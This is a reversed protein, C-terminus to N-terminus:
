PERARFRRGIASVFRHLPGRWALDVDLLEGESDRVSPVELADRAAMFRLDGDEDLEIRMGTVAEGQALRNLVASSLGPLLHHTLIRDITRAGVGGDSACREVIADLLADDYGLGAHHRREFRRRVRELKLRAIRRLDVQRLPYYPVEVMRGLLASGFQAQLIPRIGELLTEPDVRGLEQDQALRAIAEGAVNSTPLITTNSFDVTAGEGDELPGKDFVQYFPEVVDAHAKEIEDLLVVTYPRRRVAETLVGGRGYGVYGPPAGKLNSVSHAEQYESMNVVVMNEDGGYLTEALAIATETKGVGSPGVLLFVGVPKGPDDLEAHSTRMRRAIADLAEDQGVVRRGLHEELQLAVGIQDRLMRGVPIGTWDSIVSAVVHGDVEVPVMPRNQQLLELNRREAQLSERVSEAIEGRQEIDHELQRIAEVKDCEARWRDRLERQERRAAELQELLRALRDRHDAHTASERELQTVEAELLDVRRAADEVAPPTSRQRIGVRACATDLVSIAKDPLLRGTIYRQSLNVAERVAADVVRVDHHAELGRVASRVMTVATEVDPEEIHVVQFRRALAADQEFSRKYEAWTTAAITRLEGRALAPKLLNAADGYGKAGGAGILSHAEDIFLVVPKLSLEVDKIVAKLRDEFAGKLSAGAQLLALDLLRISINRLRPPVDGRIVRLALGEVVATKGVGAEGTLIPNNQRRRALVDIIQRIERERGVIPDIKGARAQETLDVTYQDLAPTPVDAKAALDASPPQSGPAATSVGHEDSVKVLMRIESRLMEGDIRHLTPVTELFLDRLGKGQRLALLIAGSRVRTAGLHLSSVLWAEQLLETVQRSFSPVKTHGTKHRQLARELEKALRAGDINYHLLIREIDTGARGLLQLLVHEIEITYHGLKVCRAAAEELAQRCAPNLTAILSKLDYEM